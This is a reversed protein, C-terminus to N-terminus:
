AYRIAAAGGAILLTAGWRRWGVYEGLVLGSIITAFLISTERLAAVSAAQAQTMAWLVLNYSLLTAGGGWVGVPFATRAYAFFAKGRMALTWLAYSGGTMVFIWCTYTAPADSRRVAISDLITYVAIICATVLAYRAAGGANIGLKKARRRADWAMGGVGCCIAGIGLWQGMPVAESLVLFSILAVLLPVSGRMMPYVLSMDGARYAAVAVGYYLCQVLTSTILLPVCAPNLPPLFPLVCAAIIASGAAVMATNMAVDGRRKVGANWSAHLFAACLVILVIQGSM